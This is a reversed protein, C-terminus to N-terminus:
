NFWLGFRFLNGQFVRDMQRWIDPSTLQGKELYPVAAAGHIWMVLDFTKPETFVRKVNIGWVQNIRWFPALVKGELVDRTEDLFRLWAEVMEKTVRVGTVSKQSPNPVWEHDDDKEELIFKWSEKSLELVKLFHLRAEGMRTPHKVPFRCLHIFAILDLISDGGIQIDGTHASDRMFEFPNKPRAFFLHGVTQFLEEFDHALLIKAMGSVLHCYGRFWPVDGRDFRILFSENGPGLDTGMYQKLIMGFPVSEGSGLDIKVRAIDLPFQVTESRIGSLTVEAVALDSAFRDLIGRFEDYTITEPKPNEPVPFRLFPLNAIGSERRRLGKRYLSKGLGEVARTFQLVGLAFRSDEDGPTKALHVTLAKEGDGLKGQYFFVTPDPGAARCSSGAGLLAGVLLVLGLGVPRRGMGTTM